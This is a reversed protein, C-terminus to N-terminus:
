LKVSVLRYVIVKSDNSTLSLEHRLTHKFIFGVWHSSKYLDILPSNDVNSIEDICLTGISNGLNIQFKKKM